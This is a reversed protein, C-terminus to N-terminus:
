VEEQTITVGSNAAGEMIAAVASVPVETYDTGVNIHGLAFGVFPDEVKLRIVDGSFAAARVEALQKELDAAKASLDEAPAEPEAAVPAPADDAPVVPIVETPADSM